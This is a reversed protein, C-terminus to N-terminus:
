LKKFLLTYGAPLKPVLAFNMSELQTGCGQCLEARVSYTYTKAATDIDLRRHMAVNCASVNVKLGLLDHKNFDIGKLAAKNCFQFHKAQFNSWQTDHSIRINSDIRSYIQCEGMNYMEVIAGGADSQLSRCKNNCAYLLASFVIVSLITRIM